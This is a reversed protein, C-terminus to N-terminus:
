VKLKLDHKIFIHFNKATSEAALNSKLLNFIGEAWHMLFETLKGYRRSKKVWDDDICM